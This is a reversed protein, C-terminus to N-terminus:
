FWDIDEEEASEFPETVVGKNETCLMGSVNLSVDGWSGDDMRRQSTRGVFVVSSGIGFNIDIHPPVWCTTGAWSGGDYDFDSNIDTITVRRTGFNNPTMNVSSVTGDTIVFKEAARVDKSQLEMHYRNLDLLPSYHNMAHEMAYNQLEVVTPEDKRSDEPLDANYKLSELTGEKFGYIRNPFNSDRIVSMSVLKFTTPTFTKSAEGKYSFFYVGNEGNVDGLFVGASRFQEAPLPKGYNVNKNAGFSPMNDLPVIWKDTDVSFNNAPLEKLIATKEEGTTNDKKKASYGEDTKTIIAVRGTNYAEEPNRDYEAKVRDNQWKGMDRAAEISLFFGLAQKILSSSGGTEAVPVDKYANKGSFWQRFLSLALKWEDTPSLNNKDCIDLWKEEVENMELGLVEAAKAIEKSVKEEM